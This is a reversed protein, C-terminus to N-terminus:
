NFFEASREVLTNTEGTVFYCTIESAGSIDPNKFEFAEPSVHVIGYRKAVYAATCDGSLTLSLSTADVRTVKDVKRGELNGTLTFYELKPNAKWELWHGDYSPPITEASYMMVTATGKFAVQTIFGGGASRLGEVAGPGKDCASLLLAAASLLLLSRTRRM